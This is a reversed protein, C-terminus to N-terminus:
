SSRLEAKPAAEPGEQAPLGDNLHLWCLKEEISVHREPPFAEPDDLANVHFHKLGTMKESSFTLPSGCDGCFERTVGPSSEFTKPNGEIWRWRGEELGIYTTMPAACQRRCSECHCTVSWKVPPIIEFRIAGCFCHGNHTALM